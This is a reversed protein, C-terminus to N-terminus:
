LRGAWGAAGAVVDLTGNGDVDASTLFHEQFINDELSLSAGSVPDVRLTTLDLALQGSGNNRLLALVDGAQTVLDLDGDGEFDLVAIGDDRDIAFFGTVLVAPLFNQPGNSYAIAVQYEGVLANLQHGILEPFGDGNLDAATEITELATIPGASFFGQGNNWFLRVDGPLGTYPLALDLDGDNDLDKALAGLPIPNVDFVQQGIGMALGSAAAPGADSFLGSGNNKILRMSQLAFGNYGACILDVDGDGDWDGPYGPGNLFAIGPPPVVPSWAIQELKGDGPNRKVGASTLRLDPDGDRDFDVVDIPRFVSPDISSAPTAFPLAQTPSAGIPGRAYYVVRGAALDVDGDGDVDGAGALRQPGLCAIKFAAAFRGSGNNLSIRFDGTLNNEATIQGVGRCDVGDLFGDGNVDILDTMPGAVALPEAQFASAGTRRLLLYNGSVASVVVDQDGDNDVDGAAHLVPDLVTLAVVPHTVLPSAVEQGAVILHFQTGGGPTNTAHMLDPRGDANADVVALSFFPWTTLTPFEDGLVLAQGAGNNLMIQITTSGYAIDDRGDANFDACVLNTAPFPLTHTTYLSPLQNGNGQYLRLGSDVRAVFDDDQGDGDLDCTLLEAGGPFGFDIDFEWGPAFVGAGNNFRALVRRAFQTGPKAFWGLLDLDGDADLDQLEQFQESSDGIVLPVQFRQLAEQALGPTPLCCLLLLPAPIINPM